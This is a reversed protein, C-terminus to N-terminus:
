FTNLPGLRVLHNNSDAFYLYTASFFVTGQTITLASSNAPDIQVNSFLNLNSVAITATQAQAVNASASYIVVIRDNADAFSNKIPLDKINKVQDVM